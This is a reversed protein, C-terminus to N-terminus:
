KLKETLFQIDHDTLIDRYKEILSIDKADLIEKMAENKIEQKTKKPPKTQKSIKTPKPPSEQAKFETDLVEGFAEMPTMVRWMKMNIQHLKIGEFNEGQLEAFQHRCDAVANELSYGTHTLLMDHNAYSMVLVYLKPEVEKKKIKSFFNFLNM